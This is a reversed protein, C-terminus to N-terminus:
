GTVGARALANALGNREATPTFLPALARCRQRLDDLFAPEAEARTLLRRLTDTDQAPYLGPYDDGLLGRNGAIDSGIVPLGAVCAESVVNAGGEMISSVVLVHASGMLRRVESHPVEGRWEFRRNATAEYRAADAWDSDYAQGVNIVHIRSAEPLGRAARAARLPDKEARLHGAFLVRFRRSSRRRYSTPLPQASQYVVALKNRYRAPIAEGVRAHLGILGDARAMSDLTTEPNTDQFRYVDTGTLAVILPREPAADDAARIAAASRWAHLAIFAEARPDAAAATDDSTAITVRHGLERLFAAWRGATARNGARSGRAAPTILTIRM